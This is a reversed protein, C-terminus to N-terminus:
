TLDSRDNAIADRLMKDLIQLPLCCAHLCCHGLSVTFMASWDGLWRALLYSSKGQTTVLRVLNQFLYILPGVVVMM